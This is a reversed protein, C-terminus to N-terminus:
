SIQEDPKRVGCLNFDRSLFADRGQEAWVDFVWAGDTELAIIPQYAEVKVLQKDSIVEIAKRQYNQGEFQDLKAIDEDSLGNLIAGIAVDDDQGELLCPYDVHAVKMVRMFPAEAESSTIAAGEHGLVSALVQNDLLTGYIFLSHAM